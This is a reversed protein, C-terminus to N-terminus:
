CAMRLLETGVLEVVRRANGAWTHHECVHSRGARALGAAAEQSQLVTRIAAALETADGPPYLFGTEGPRVCHAIDGIDAAVVPRAAALYEFLKIPSFYFAEHEAYPAVAVDAAALYAPVREHALAGVFVTDVGEHVALTELSSREPGEGVVLLTPAGPERRLLALARILTPIDHWPKLSGLFVVVHRGALGLERRLEAGERPRPRFCDSDVGNPIVAVRAAEVGLERLWRELGDSVAIVLDAARVITREAQRAAHVSVLGRHRAQEDVLPANVELVLPVGLEAAIAAGGTGFLSYREYIVDPRFERLVPLARQPLLSAYRAARLEGADAGGDLPLTHVPVDFGPPPAAGTRPSLILVDHGLSQLASCLERVHISAGKTGFVPVGFDASLYAIRM